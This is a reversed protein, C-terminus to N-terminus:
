KHKKKKKPPSADVFVFKQVIKKELFVCPPPSHTSEAKRVM